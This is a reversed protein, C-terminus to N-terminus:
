KNRYGEKFEPVYRAFEALSDLLTTFDSDLSDPALKGLELYQTGLSNLIPWKGPTKGYYDFFDAMSVAGYGVTFKGKHLVHVAGTDGIKYHVSLHNNIPADPISLEFAIYLLNNTQPEELCVPVWWRQKEETFDYHGILLTGSPTDFSYTDCDIYGSPYGWTDEIQAKAHKQMLALLDSHFKRIESKTLYRM